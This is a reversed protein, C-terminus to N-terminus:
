GEQCATQVSVPKLRPLLPSLQQHLATEIAAIRQIDFRLSEPAANSVMLISNEDSASLIITPFVSHLLEAFAERNTPLHHMNIVLWGDSTLIRACNQLFNKQTQTPVMQYADYMDSFIINSSKDGLTSIENVADAITINVRHDDPILFYDKAIAVVKERLEIVNFFCKPLLHHFTRLLSGGGLGFVSVHGPDIYALVLAMLQTYPHVLQFPRCVYMSSQEFLSDFNLTRRESEDIVLLRGYGDQSSYIVNGGNQFPLFHIDGLNKL